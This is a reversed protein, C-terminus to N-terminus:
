RSAMVNRIAELVQGINAPKVLHESFGADRSARIDEDRGYGSMAIGRIHRRVRLRRMLEHGSADPLGIDSIVVDFPASFALAEASQATHALEVYHGLHRLLMGLVQATEVHDEVLLIRLGKPDHPSGAAGALAPGAEAAEADLVPLEVVFEAGHGPGESHAEISGGHSETIGKSISLGLGLGPIQRPIDAAAQEFADFIRELAQPPIGVGRDRLRVRVAPGRGNRSVHESKLEVRRGGPTFQVANKLLNWFVQQLRPADGLVVDPEASLDEIFEIDKEELDGRCNRLAEAVVENIKVPRLDLRLKGSLVRSLDLLDDILRAEVEVNRRVMRMTERVEPALDEQTELSSVALLVPALPTRLEHSLVALFHDKARNAEEAEEKAARLAENARHLETHDRMVKTFGVIAGAQDQIVTTIGEAFFRDGNKRRMWRTNAATGSREAEEFELQAVGAEIDEPTFIIDGIEQGVFEKETFGLVREVGENWTVPRGELDVRFIAYDNVQAVLTRYREESERLAQEARKRASIDRFLVGIQRQEPEGIPFAYVNWWRSLPTSSAEFREPQRERAVRGYLEFWHEDQDAAIDRMWRGAADRIGTQHEFSPSVELFRYDLPRDHEDFKVEITCFGQDIAHYLALYREEADRLKAELLAPPDHKEMTRIKSAPPRSAAPSM